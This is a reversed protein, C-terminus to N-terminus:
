PGTRAMLHLVADPVARSLEDCVAPDDLDADVGPLDVGDLGGGLTLLPAVEEAAWLGDWASPLLDVAQLFGMCWERADAWEDPGHEAISFIPEWDDPATHLQHSLHRLHRLAFLVTNKRQRKTAFPAADDSGDMDGGWILPLWEATPLACLAAPGIAFATLFGDFGDLSMAGDSPLKQLLMDLAAIEEPALPTVPSQPDYTPYQV